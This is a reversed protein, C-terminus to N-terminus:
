NFGVLRVYMERGVTGGFQSSSTVNATNTGNTRLVFLGITHVGAALVATSLPPISAPANSVEATFITEGVITSTNNPAGAGGDRARVVYRDGATGSTLVLNNLVVQYRFSETSTFQYNGLNTDQGETVGLTGTATTASVPAPLNSLANLVDLMAQFDDATPEYGAPFSTPLTPM